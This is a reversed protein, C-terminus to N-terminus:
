RLKKSLRERVSLKAKKRVTSVSFKAQKPRQTKSIRKPSVSPLWEDDNRHEGVIAALDERLSSQNRQAHSSVPEITCSAKSVVLDFGRSLDTKSSSSLKLRLKPPSDRLAMPFDRKALRRVSSIIHDGSLCQEMASLVEDFTDYGNIVTGFKAARVEKEPDVRVGSAEWEKVASLLTKLETRESKGVDSDLLRHLYWGCAYMFLTRFFPFRFRDLLNSRQEIEHIQLQMAVDYGHIFNGGFVLSDTPTYVAHIWGSPIILTQGPQVQIRFADDLTNKSKAFFIAGQNPDRVWAEYAELNSKSPRILCFDKEGDLVHYWVSTGGFDIHFDTYCGAASTLCYYQVRPYQSHDKREFEPWAQDIWDLDRVFSPSAVKSRLRTHSFEYSIQNIVRNRSKTLFSQSAQRPRRQKLEETCGNMESIRDKDEFYDVLDGFKWGELEQQEEVDIVAVPSDFGFDEAISRLTLEKAPPLKMGISQPTDTIIIPVRISIKGSRISECTLLSGNVVVQLRDAQREEIVPIELYEGVHRNAHQLAEAM